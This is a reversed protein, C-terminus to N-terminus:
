PFLEAQVYPMSATINREQCWALLKRAEILQPANEHYGMAMIHGMWPERGMAYIHVQKPNIRRVIDIAREANSGNLRRSQDMKRPLPAPLLPGYMWSLPGGESEMGLFLVDIDGVAAQVHDYLRPELANSDAAMLMSRGKLQVLHALKAQINLDAHEGIFPIGTLAGDPIPLSELEALAVVNPFGVAKLMLKLSPDALAGGNSAPVVITGIRKRLPILTELMLHDAHGHTILVYDIKEPLDAHTYRPLDNPFDYSVVPDTLISVDRTEILVCAHGFYRVRVGDGDYRPAPAPPKDTFFTSFLEADKGQLGLADRVPEVPGPTHRLAFLADLAEHRFPRHIHLTHPDSDLRPTSFVYPRADGELLRLSVSQSSEKFHPGRYLLSEFFRASARNNLDYTLEVYGRLIDPVKKYLEELSFGNATSLLKDVEGIAQAFQLSDAQEKRTRELLAKVEGVREVGHHIYPGGALAPNKLAAVHIAPNAVFSELIKVHNAVYLPATAPSLLYWWAYWQNYLPELAVNQKLYRPSSSM